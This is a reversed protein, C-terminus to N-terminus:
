VEASRKGARQSVLVVVLLRFGERLNTLIKVAAALIIRENMM